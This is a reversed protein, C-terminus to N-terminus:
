IGPLMPEIERQKPAKKRGLGQAQELYRALKRLTAPSDKALGLISNCAGCLWGRFKGTQHCHDFSIGHKGSSRCVECREPRPRGAMLERTRRLKENQWKRDAARILDGHKQRHRAKANRAKDPNNERYLRKTNRIKEENRQRYKRRFEKVKEAHSRRYAACKRQHCEWCKQDTTVRQAIHGHKCPRGTFYRNLGASRAEQLTVIPGDHFITPEAM